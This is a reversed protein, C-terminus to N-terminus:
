RQGNLQWDQRVEQEPKWVAWLLNRGWERLAPARLLVQPSHLGKRDGIAILSVFFSYKYIKTSV